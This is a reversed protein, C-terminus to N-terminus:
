SPATRLLLRGSGACADSLLSRWGLRLASAHILGPVDNGLHSKASQLDAGAPSAVVERRQRPVDGDIGLLKLPAERNIKAPVELGLGDDELDVGSRNSSALLPKRELTRDALLEHAPRIKVPIGELTKTPLAVLQGVVIVVDM